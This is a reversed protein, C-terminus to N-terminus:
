PTPMGTSSQLLRELLRRAIAEVREPALNRYGAVQRALDSRLTERARVREAEVRSDLRALEARTEADCRERATAAARLGETRIREAEQRAATIRQELQSELELLRQLGSGTPPLAPASTM